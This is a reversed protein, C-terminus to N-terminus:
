KTQVAVYYVDLEIRSNIDANYKNGAITRSFQTEYAPSPPVLLLGDQQYSSIPNNLILNLYSTIDYTYTSKGGFYDTYLNGYQVSSSTGTVISLDTGLQNAVMTTSLRLSPALYFLTNYLNAVPRIILQARLLKVYNPMNLLSQISPFRIKIMAGTAPQTFAMNGTLKSNIINQKGPANISGLNQIPTGTRNVAINTFHHSTNSLPFNISASDKYLSPTHYALKLGLSDKCGFILSSAANSSICLGNFYNLFNTGNTVDLDGRQIKAFLTDGLVDSLRIHISDTLNPRITIDTSGLPTPDVAFKNTNYLYSGINGFLSPPIILEALRSVDIHVPKTTDGYYNKNLKLTLYLSDYIAKTFSSATTSPTGIEFFTRTDVRGFYPDTYGGVLTVGKGNTPFSDIYVTSIDATFSDIKVIQTFDNSSYENNFSIDVKQCASITCLILAPILTYSAIKRFM